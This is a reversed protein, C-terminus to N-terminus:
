QHEQSLDQNIQTKNPCNPADTSQLCNISMFSSSHQYIIQSTELFEEIDSDSDLESIIMAPEENGDQYDDVCTDFQCARPAPLHHQHNPRHHDLSPSQCLFHM